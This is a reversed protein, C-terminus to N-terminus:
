GYSVWTYVRCAEAADADWCSHRLEASFHLLSKFNESVSTKLLLAVKWRDPFTFQYLTCMHPSFIGMYDYLIHLVWRLHIDETCNQFLINISWNEKCVGCDSPHNVQIHQFVPQHGLQIFVTIIVEEVLRGDPESSYLCALTDWDLKAVFTSLVCLVLLHRTLATVVGTGLNLGTHSKRRHTQSTYQRQAEM